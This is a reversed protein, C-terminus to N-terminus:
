DYKVKKNDLDSWDIELKDVFKGDRIITPVFPGNDVVKWVVM